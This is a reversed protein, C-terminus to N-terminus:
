EMTFVMTTCHKVPKLQQMAEKIGATIAESKESNISFQNQHREAYAGIFIENGNIKM